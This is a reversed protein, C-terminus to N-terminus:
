GAFRQPPISRRIEPRYDGDDEKRIDYSALTDVLVSPSPRGALADELVSEVWERISTGHLAATIKVRRHLEEGVVLLKTGNM